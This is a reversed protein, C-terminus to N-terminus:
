ASNRNQGRFCLCSGVEVVGSVKAACFSVLEAAAPGTIEKNKTTEDKRKGHHDGGCGGSLLSVGGGVPRPRRRFL